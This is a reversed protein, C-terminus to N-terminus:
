RGWGGFEVGSELGCPELRVEYGGAFQEEGDVFRKVEGWMLDLLRISVVADEALNYAM